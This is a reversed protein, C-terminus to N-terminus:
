KKSMSWNQPHMPDDVGIFGVVYKEPDPLLPPYDKGDGFPLWEERPAPGASSGVTSRHTLRLSEVRALDINTQRRSVPESRIDEFTPAEELDFSAPSLSSAREPPSPMKYLQAAQM